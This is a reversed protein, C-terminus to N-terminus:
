SGKRHSLSEPLSHPFEFQVGGTAANYQREPAHQRPQRKKGANAMVDRAVAATQVAVEKLKEDLVASFEAPRLGAAGLCPNGKLVAPLWWFTDQVALCYYLSARSAIAVGIQKPFAGKNAEFEGLILDFPEYDLMRCGDESSFAVKCKCEQARLRLEFAGIGEMNKGLLLVRPRIGDIWISRETCRAAASRM